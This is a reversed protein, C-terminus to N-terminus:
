KTLVPFTRGPIDMVVAGHEAFYDAFLSANLTASM